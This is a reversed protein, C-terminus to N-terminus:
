LEICTFAKLVKWYLFESMQYNKIRLDKFKSFFAGTSNTSILWDLIFLFVFIFKNVFKCDIILMMCTFIVILLAFYILHFNLFYVLTTIFYLSVVIGATKFRAHNLTLIKCVRNRQIHRPVRHCAWSSEYFWCGVCFVSLLVWWRCVIHIGCLLHQKM